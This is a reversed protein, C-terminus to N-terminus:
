QAERPKSRARWDNELAKHLREAQQIALKMSSETFDDMPGYISAAMLAILEFKTVHGEQNDLCLVM